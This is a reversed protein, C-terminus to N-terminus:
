RLRWLTVSYVDIDKGEIGELYPGNFCTEPVWGAELLEAKYTTPKM